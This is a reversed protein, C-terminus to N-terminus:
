APGPDRRAPGGAARGPPRRRLRGREPVAGGEDLNNGALFGVDNQEGRAYTEAYGRPIVWGDVVPRFLPPKAASGTDVNEDAEPLGDALEEWPLGRLVALPGLRKGSEEADALTRYSTALYRLEPDGPHRAHSQAIARSFLGRALPSLALFGASGAGASQGAVTVRAADGGFAAITRRVWELVAIQDLLGYNGSAGHGSEESLEPSALFGLVGLRYNCTVVVIGRRALHEGDFRPDAGSGQRFGGGHLWVLVPLREAGSRAPTWVNLYLCDESMALGRRAQPCSPGFHVADRVGWWPVPPRPPRWRLDGVPPAAYPVGRFVTVSPDRGPAGRLLGSEAEVPARM